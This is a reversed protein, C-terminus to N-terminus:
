NVPLSFGVSKGCKCKVFVYTYYEPNSDKQTSVKVINGCNCEETYIQSSEGDFDYIDEYKYSM